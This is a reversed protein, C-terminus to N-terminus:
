IIAFSSQSNPFGYQNLTTFQLSDNILEFTIGVEIIDKSITITVNGNPNILFDKEINLIKSASLMELNVPLNNDDFDLFVGFSLELSKKHTYEDKIEINILDLNYDYTYEAEYKKIDM